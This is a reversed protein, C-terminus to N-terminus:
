AESVCAASGEDVGIFQRWRSVAEGVRATAARDTLAVHAANGRGIARSLIHRDVPLVLGQVGSGERDMGVRWAQDLKRRGDDGADSAHFLATVRGKRAAEGIRDSGVLLHGARAELGLRDLADRALAAAIRAGLDDPVVIGAQKFARALGARLKGAAHAKELDALGVGLWAGRGPARARVDPAVVGEPSLALRVLGARAGRDGSIICRRTNENPPTRM